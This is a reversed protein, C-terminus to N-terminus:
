AVHRRKGPRLRPKDGVQSPGKPSRQNDQGRGGTVPVPVGLLRLALQLSQALLSWILSLRPLSHIGVRVAGSLIALVAAITVGALAVFGLLQTLGLLMQALGLGIGRLGSIVNYISQSAALLTDFDLTEAAQFLGALLGVGLLVQLLGLGVDRPAFAGETRPRRRGAPSPTARSPGPSSRLTM